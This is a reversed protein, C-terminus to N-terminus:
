FELQCNNKTLVKIIDNWQMKDETMERPLKVIFSISAMKFTDQKRSAKLSISLM